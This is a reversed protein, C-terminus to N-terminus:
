VYIVGDPWLCDRLYKIYSGLAKHNLYKLYFNLLSNNFEQNSTIAFSVTKLASILRNRFFSANDLDFIYRVLEFIRSRVKSFKIAEIRKRLTAVMAIKAIKAASLTKKPKMDRKKGKKLGM